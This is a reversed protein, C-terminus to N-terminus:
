RGTQSQGWGCNDYGNRLWVIEIIQIASFIIGCTIKNNKKNIQYNTSEFSRISHFFSFIRFSHTQFAVLKRQALFQCSVFSFDVNFARAVDNTWRRKKKKENGNWKWCIKQKTFLQFFCQHLYLKRGLYIEKWQLKTPNCKIEWM